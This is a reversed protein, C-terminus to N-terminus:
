KIGLLVSARIARRDVAAALTIKVSTSVNDRVAVFVSNSAYGSIDARINQKDRVTKGVSEM